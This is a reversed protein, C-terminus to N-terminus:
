ITNVWLEKNQLANVKTKLINKARSLRARSTTIKIDLLQAIERHSYGDIAALNFVTRYTDPLETILKILTENDYKDLIHSEITYSLETPNVDELAILSISNNRLATLCLRITITSIWSSFTGKTSDYKDLNRFIRLLSEQMMDKASEQNKLYRNCTVYILGSYTDVLARQCLADKHKCGEIIEYTTLKSM